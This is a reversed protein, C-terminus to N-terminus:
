GSVSHLIISCSEPRDHERRWGCPAQTEGTLRRLSMNCQRTTSVSESDSMKRHSIWGGSVNEVPLM